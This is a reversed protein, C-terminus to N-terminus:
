SATFNYESTAVGLANCLILYRLWRRLFEEEGHKKVHM